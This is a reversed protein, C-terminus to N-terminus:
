IIKFNFEVGPPEAPLGAPLESPHDPLPLVRHGEGPPVGPQGELQVDQQPCTLIDKYLIKQNDILLIVM